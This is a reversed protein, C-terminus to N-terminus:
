KKDAAPRPAPQAKEEDKERYPDEDSNAIVFNRRAAPVSKNCLHKALDVDLSVIDGPAVSKQTVKGDDSVIVRSWSGTGTYRVESM